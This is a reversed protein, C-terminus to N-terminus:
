TKLHCICCPMIIRCLLVIGAEPKCCHNQPYSKWGSKTEPRNRMRKAIKNNTQSKPWTPGSLNWNHFCARLTKQAGNLADQDLVLNNSAIWFILYEVSTSLTCQACSVFMPLNHCALGVTSKEHQSFRALVSSSHTETCPLSNWVHKWLQCDGLLKKLERTASCWCKYPWMFDVSQEWQWGTSTIWVHLSVGTHAKPFSAYRSSCEHKAQFADWAYQNDYRRWLGCM